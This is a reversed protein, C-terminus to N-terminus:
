PGPPLLVADIVHIVGNSCEIDTEIVNVDGNLVVNGGIVEITIDSGQLTTVSDLPIIDAAMLNGSAVHYVLIQTLDGTPDELLDELLGPPLAAFADDTPAFVTFPGPGALGEDLGAAVVATVLTEFRDDAALTEVINQLPEPGAGMGEVIAWFEMRLSFIQPEIVRLKKHDKKTLATNLPGRLATYQNLIEQLETVDKGQNELAKIANKMSRVQADFIKMREAREAALFKDRPGAAAAAAPIVVMGAVLLFLLGLAINRKM